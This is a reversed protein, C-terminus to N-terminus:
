QYWKGILLFFVLGTLSDLYGVGQGSVIDYASQIFLTLIGLAISLDISIIRYRLSKIASIFYDNSCYLVVPISLILSLWGFFRRFDDELLEGGLIYNGSGPYSSKRPALHM